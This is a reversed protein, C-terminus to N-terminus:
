ACLHRDSGPQAEALRDDHRRVRHLVGSRDFGPELEM